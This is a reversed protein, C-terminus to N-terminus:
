EKDEKFTVQGNMLMPLLFDRLSTLEQNQRDLSHQLSIFKIADSQFSQMVKENPVLIKIQRLEDQRIGFVTSGSSSGKIQSFGNGKSLEYYLYLSSLHKKARIAFLRQSLCYKPEDYLYYFEGLPAESTMLIDGNALKTPMWKDYMEESVKNATSLDLLRGNKVVKASLAIIGEDVWDGGLKKPTVGRRDIITEVCKDLKTVKWGEPIERKLEENWVMKGGSSKYPKGDESPFEFQLFWYDYITKAISELESIIKNNNKIKKSILDFLEVMKDQTKRSPYIVVIDKFNQANMNGRTSGSFGSIQKKYIDSITFYKMYRPNIKESDFVYKILFGAYALREDDESYVYTRGTSNGTRAVVLDNPKLVYEKVNPASISKKDDDLLNGSDDLDSIRLYRVKNPAYEEAPLGLGYQCSEDDIILEGVTSKNM